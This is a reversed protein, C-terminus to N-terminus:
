LQAQLHGQSQTVDAGLSDDGCTGGEEEDQGPLQYLVM